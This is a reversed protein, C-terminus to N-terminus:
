SSIAPLLLSQYKSSLPSLKLITSDSLAFLRAPVYEKVTYAVALYSSGDYSPAVASTEPVMVM